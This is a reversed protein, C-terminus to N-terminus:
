CAAWSFYKKALIARTSNQTTCAQRLTYFRYRFVIDFEIHLTVGYVFHQGLYLFLLCFREYVTSMTAKVIKQFKVTRCSSGCVVHMRSAGCNAQVWSLNDIALSFKELLYRNPMFM